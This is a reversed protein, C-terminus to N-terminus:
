KMGKMFSPTLSNMKRKSKSKGKMQKKNPNEPNKKSLFSPMLGKM